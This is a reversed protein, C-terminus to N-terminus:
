DERVPKSFNFCTKKGKKLVTYVQRREREFIVDYILSPNTCIQLPFKTELSTLNKKPFHKKEKFSTSFWHTPKEPPFFIIITGFLQEKRAVADSTRRESDKYLRL